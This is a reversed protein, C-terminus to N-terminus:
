NKGDSQRWASGALVEYQDYSVRRENARMAYKPRPSQSTAWITRRAHWANGCLRDFHEVHRASLSGCIHLVKNKIAQL